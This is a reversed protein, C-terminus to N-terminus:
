RMTSGRSFWIIDERINLLEKSLSDRDTEDWTNLNMRCDMKVEMEGILNWNAASRSWCM